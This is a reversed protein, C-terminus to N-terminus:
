RFFYKSKCIKINNKNCTETMGECFEARRDFDDENLNHVIQLKYPRLQQCCGLRHYTEDRVNHLM